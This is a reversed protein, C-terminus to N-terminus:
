STLKKGVRISAIRREAVNELIYDPNDMRKGEPWFGLSILAKQTFENRLKRLISAEELKGLYELLLDFIEPHNEGERTIKETVELMFYAVSAKKLNGRIEGFGNITEVETLLDLGKGKTAHFKVHSFVEIHGRKKSGLKRVGKAVFHVKGHNRTMLILIRDAEGFNHRALVIGESSYSRM